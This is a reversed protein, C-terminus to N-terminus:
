ETPASYLVDSYCVPFLNRQCHDCLEEWRSLIGDAMSVALQLDQVDLSAVFDPALPSM